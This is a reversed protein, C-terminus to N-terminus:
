LLAWDALTCCCRGTPWNVSAAGLRGAYLLPTWDALM